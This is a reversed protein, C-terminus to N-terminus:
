WWGDDIPQVHWGHGHDHWGHDHWGHDHWGHHHEKVHIIHKEEWGHSPRHHLLGAGLGLAAGAAGGALLPLALKKALKKVLKADSSSPLLCGLLLAVLAVAYTIRM